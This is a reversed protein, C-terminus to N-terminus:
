SPFPPVIIRSALAIGLDQGADHAGVGAGDRGRIVSRDLALEQRRGRRMPDAIGVLEPYPSRRRGRRLVTRSGGRSRSPVVSADEAAPPPESTGVPLCPARTSKPAGVPWRERSPSEAPSRFETEIPDPPPLPHTWSSIAIQCLFCRELCSSRPCSVLLCPFACRGSRRDAGQLVAKISACIGPGSASAFNVMIPPPTEPFGPGIKGGYERIRRAEVDSGGALRRFAAVRQVRVACGLHEENEFPRQRKKQAPPRCHRRPQGRLPSDDGIDDGGSNRGHSRSYRAGVVPHDHGDQPAFEIRAAADDPCRLDDLFQVDVM